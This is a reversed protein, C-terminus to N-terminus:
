IFRWVAIVLLTCGAAVLDDFMIGFGAKAWAAKDTAPDV